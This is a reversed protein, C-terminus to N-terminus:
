PTELTRIQQRILEAPQDPAWAAETAVEGFMDEFRQVDAGTDIWEGGAPYELYVTSPDDAREFWLITCSGSMAGYAGAAYPVVQITVNERNGMRLLHRLQESMTTPGGVTRRVVGIDLNVVQEVERL